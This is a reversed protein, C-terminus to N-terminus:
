PDPDKQEPVVWLKQVGVARLAAAVFRFGVGHMATYVTM